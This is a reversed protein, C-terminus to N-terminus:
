GSADATDARQSYLENQLRQEVEELSRGAENSGDEIQLTERVRQVFNGPSSRATTHQEDRNHLPSRSRDRNADGATHISSRTARRDNPFAQVPRTDQNALSTPHSEHFWVSRCIPCRKKWRGPSRLHAALCQEGMVHRCGRRLSSSEAIMDIRVAWEGAHHNRICGPSPSEIYPGYCIICTRDDAALQSLPLPTIFLAGEM